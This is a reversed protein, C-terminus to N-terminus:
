GGETTGWAKDFRREALDAPKIWFQAVGLDCFMFHEHLSLDSDIQLLLITGDARVEEVTGQVDWGIGLMQHMPCHLRRRMSGGQYRVEEIYERPIAAKIADRSDPGAFVPLAGIAREISAITAAQAAAEDTDTVSTSPNFGIFTDIVYPELAAQPYVTMGTEFGGAREGFRHLIEPIDDPPTREPGAQNAFIVRTTAFPGGNYNWLMEEVMDAFFFLVGSNPLTPANPASDLPTSPLRSLDIQALFHLPSNSQSQRPWEIEPPLAPLGGVKTLSFNRGAQRRFWIAPERQANQEDQHM